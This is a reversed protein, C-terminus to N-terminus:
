RGPLLVMLSGTPGTARPLARWVLKARKAANRREARYARPRRTQKRAAAKRAMASLRIVDPKPFM